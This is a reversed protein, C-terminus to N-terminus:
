FTLDCIDVSVFYQQNVRKHVAINVTGIVSHVFPNFDAFVSDFVRSDMFM